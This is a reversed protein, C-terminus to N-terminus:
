RVPSTSTRSLLFVLAFAVAGWLIFDILFAGVALNTVLQGAFAGGGWSAFNLVWGGMLGFLLSEPRDEPRMRLWWVAATIALAGVVLFSRIVVGTDVSVQNAGIVGGIVDAVMTLVAATLASGIIISARM